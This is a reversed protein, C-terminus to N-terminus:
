GRQSFLNAWNEASGNLRIEYDDAYLGITQEVQAQIRADDCVGSLRPEGEFEIVRLGDEYSVNALTLGIGAVSNSLGRDEYQARKTVLLQVIAHALDSMNKELEVRVPVLVDECGIQMFADDERYDQGSATLLIIVSNEDPKMSIENLVTNGGTEQPENQAVNGTVSETVGEEQMAEDEKMVEEQKESKETSKKLEQNEKKLRENEQRLEISEDDRGNDIAVPEQLKCGAGILALGLALVYLLPYKM